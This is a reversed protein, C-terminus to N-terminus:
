AGEADGVQDSGGRLGLAFDFAAESGKLAAQDGEKSVGFRVGELVGVMDELHLDLTLVGGEMRGGFFDRGLNEFSGFDVREGGESRRREGRQEVKM